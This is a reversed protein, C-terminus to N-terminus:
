YIVNPEGFKECCPATIEMAGLGWQNPVICTSFCEQVMDEYVLFFDNTEISHTTIWYCVEYISKSIEGYKYTKDYRWQLSIDQNIVGAKNTDEETFPIQYMMAIKEIPKEEIDSIKNQVMEKIGYKPIIIQGWSFVVKDAGRNFPYKRHKNDDSFFYDFGIFRLIDQFSQYKYKENM